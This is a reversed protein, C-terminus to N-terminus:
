PKLDITTLKWEHAKANIPRRIREVFHHPWETEEPGPRFNGFTVDVDAGATSELGNLTLQVRHLRKTQNGIWAIVGDAESMGFGPRLTGAILTCMEGSLHRQGLNRWSSGCERLVSSGFTFVVYADAVLAAAELSDTSLDTTSNRSVAISTPTRLVRKEGAPGRHSQLVQRKRPSYVETSSQRYHADVLTPQLARALSSWDGEYTVTITDLEQWPNGSVM